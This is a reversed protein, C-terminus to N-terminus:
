KTVRLYPTDCPANWYKLLEDDMKSIFLQFGATEQVTLIEDVWSAVVEAGHAELVKYAKRFCILMEM